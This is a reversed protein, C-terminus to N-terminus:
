RLHYITLSSYSRHLPICYHTQNPVPYRLHKSPREKYKIHLLHIGKVHLTAANFICDGNGTTKIPRLNSDPLDSPVLSATLEDTEISVKSRTCKRLVTMYKTQIMLIAEKNNERFLAKLKLLDADVADMNSEDVSFLTGLKM